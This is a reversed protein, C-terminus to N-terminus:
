LRYRLMWAEPRVAGRGCEGLGYLPDGDDIWWEALRRDGELWV